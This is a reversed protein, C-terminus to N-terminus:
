RRLRCATGPQSGTSAARPPLRNESSCPRRQPACRHAPPADSGAEPTSPGAAPCDGKPARAAGNKGGAAAVDQMSTDRLEVKVPSAAPFAEGSFSIIDVEILM